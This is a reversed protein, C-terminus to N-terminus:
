SAHAGEGDGVVVDGVRTGIGRGVGTGVGTGVGDCMTIVLGFALVLQASPAVCTM